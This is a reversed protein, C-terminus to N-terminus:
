LLTAMDYLMQLYPTAIGRRRSAQLPKGLIADTELPRSEQRDIQMSTRYAGMTHTQAIKLEPLDAPLKIGEAAATQMIEAM